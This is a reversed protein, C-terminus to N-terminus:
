FSFEWALDSDYTVVGFVMDCLATKVTSCFMDYQLLIIDGKEIFSIRACAASVNAIRVSLILTTGCYWLM